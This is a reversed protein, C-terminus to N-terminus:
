VVIKKMFKILKILTKKFLVAATKGSIQDRFFQVSYFIFYTERDVSFLFHAMKKAHFNM